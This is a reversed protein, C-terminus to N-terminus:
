TYLADAKEGYIGTADVDLTYQGRVDRRIIRHNTVDRVEGLGRLGQQDKMPDGMRRTWDGATDPDPITDYGILKMLGEDSKLERLDEFSRGGGQLMLVLSNVFISPTFGRNSGPLPLHKDALERLGIGHNYETILALGSRATLVEKTTAIKFPFITQQIM